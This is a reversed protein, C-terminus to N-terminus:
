SIICECGPENKKKKKNGTKSNNMQNNSYDNKNKGKKNQIDNSENLANIVDNKNEEM